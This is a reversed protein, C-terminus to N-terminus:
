SVLPKGYDDPVTYYDTARLNALGVSMVRGWSGNAWSSIQNGCSGIQYYDGEPWEPRRVKRGADIESLAELINM